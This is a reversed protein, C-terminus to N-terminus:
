NYKKIEKAEKEYLKAMYLCRKKIYGENESARKKFSESTKMYVTYLKDM